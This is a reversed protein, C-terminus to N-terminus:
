VDYYFLQTALRLRTSQEIIPNLSEDFSLYAALFFIGVDKLQQVAFAPGGDSGYNCPTNKLDCLFRFTVPFDVQYADFVYGANSLTHSSPALPIMADYLVNYLSTSGLNRNANITDSSFIDRWTPPVGNCRLSKVVLVRAYWLRNGYNGEGRVIGIGNVSHLCVTRGLRENSATGEAIPNLCFGLNAVTPDDLPRSPIDVTVVKLELADVRQDGTARTGKITNRSTSPRWSKKWAKRGPKGRIYRSYTNLPGGANGLRGYYRRNSFYM